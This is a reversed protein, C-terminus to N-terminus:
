LDRPYIKLETVCLELHAGEVVDALPGSGELLIVDSGVRFEIVGDAGIREACGVVVVVDGDQEVPNRSAERAPRVSAIMEESVDMEVDLELGVSVKEFGALYGSVSEGGCRFRVLQRAPDLVEEIQIRM